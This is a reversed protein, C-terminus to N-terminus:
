LCTSQNPYIFCDTSISQRCGSLKVFLINVSVCLLESSVDATLSLYEMHGQLSGADKQRTTAGKELRDASHRKWKALLYPSLFSM